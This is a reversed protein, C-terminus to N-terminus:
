SWAQSQARLALESVTFTHAQSVATETRHTLDHVFQEGFPLPHDECPIYRTGQQDVLFLHNRGSRGALDCNKRIEISGETGLLFLRVDGWTELGAPTLWDVRIFGSAEGSQLLLEGFDEFEPYHGFKVNATRAAVIEASASGTFYLFQDIQHSALDNLIGGYRARQFTWEPRAMQGFLRHPGFGVTQVVRGIAGAQVLEGAKVTAPNDFRESFYIAYIRGTEAQARRAEALQALTTFGPKDSFYDKGHRLAQLGLPARQDPVAASAILQIQPDELVEEISRALRAQPYSKGFEQVREPEEGWFWALEAGARLLCNVQGYIHSHSLGIAAFRITM